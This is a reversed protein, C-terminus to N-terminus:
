RRERGRRDHVLCRLALPRRPVDAVPGVIAQSGVAWDIPTRPRVLVM